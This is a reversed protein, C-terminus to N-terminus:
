FKTVIVKIGQKEKMIKMGKTLLDELSIKHTILKDAEVINRHVLGIADLYDAGNSIFSGLIQRQWRVIENPKITGTARSDQGFLVLRARRAWISLATEFTASIGVADIVVDAGRDDTIKMVEYVVIQTEPNIVHNAGLELAKNRRYEMPEVVILQDLPHKRIVSEIILGMPGAGIIVVNDTEKVDAINHAHVACSLPEILASKVIDIDDPLKYIARRPVVCYKAFGGDRFIGLTQGTALFDCQNDYGTRCSPCIGCKLNPDVVVKDGKRLDTIDNGLDEVIGCFEHGLIVNDNAPHGGVMIKLDTGCIGAAKVEILVDDDDKIKPIPMKELKIEGGAKGKKHFVAALMEEMIIGM